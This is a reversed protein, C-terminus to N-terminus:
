APKDEPRLLARVRADRLALGGWILAGVILPFVFSFLPSGVRVHTAIAGGLYGTLLIAGLPATRPLLYVALCALLLVGLPMVVGAPYGLQVTADVAPALQLVKIGGDMILFAAALGSIIWGSWLATKTSTMPHTATQM